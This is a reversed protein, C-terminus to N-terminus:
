NPPKGEVPVHVNFRKELKPITVVVPVSAIVVIVPSEAPLYTKLTKLASPHREFEDDFMSM